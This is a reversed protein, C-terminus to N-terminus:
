NLLNKNWSTKLNKMVSLSPNLYSEPDSIPLESFKNKLRNASPKFTTYTLTGTIVGGVVPIIKSVGTAFIQKTMRFGIQKAIKKVIPYVVGKTLAKRALSKAAKKSAVGAIIKVAANAEQVGFMVGLFLLVENMTADSVNDESLEFESFGYLYALKQMIRLIFGFYQATDAPITAAMAFGGPIGAAFSIASVKKTEYNICQKALNNITERYIGAQAPYTAIANNIIKEPFLGELEKKFVKRDIKIGPTKMVITLVDELSVNLIKDSGTDQENPSTKLQDSM